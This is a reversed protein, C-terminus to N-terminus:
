ETLPATPRGALTLLMEAQGLEGCVKQCFADTEAAKDEPPLAVYERCLSMLRELQSSLKKEEDEWAMRELDYRVQLRDLQVAKEQSKQAAARNLLQSLGSLMMEMAPDRREEGAPEERTVAREKMPAAVAPCPRGEQRLRQAAAELLEPKNKLISRYKNQYRLMLSRDGGAMQMVCARVSMGEGRAALVRELLRDVEEPTFTLFPAARHYSEDPRERLQAYYYNRISNPKRGLERGAQEFVGRLPRGTRGAEEVLAFLRDSEEAKWGTRASRVPQEM